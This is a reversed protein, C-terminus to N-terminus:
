ASGQLFLVITQVGLDTQHHAFTAMCQNMLAGSFILKNETQKRWEFDIKKDSPASHMIQDLLSCLSLVWPCCCPVQLLPVLM